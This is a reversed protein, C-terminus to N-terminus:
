QNRLLVQTSISSTARGELPIGTQSQAVTFSINVQGPTPCTFQCNSVSVATSTLRFEAGGSALYSNPPTGLCAFSNSIGEPDVFSVQTSSVCTAALAGRLHREMVSAAFDAEQRVNKSIESKSRSQLISFLSQTAFLSLVVFLALAVMLEILTFGVKGKERM